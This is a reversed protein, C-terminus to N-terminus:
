GRPPYPDNDYTWEFEITGDAKHVVLQSPRNAKAVAQGESIASGKLLHNSLVRGEFKVQWNTGYPVVRFVNRTM